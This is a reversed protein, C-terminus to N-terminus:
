RTNKSIYFVQQWTRDTLFDHFAVGAFFGLLFGFFPPSLLITLFMGLMGTIWHHLHLKWKGIPIHIGKIKGTRKRIKQCVFPTQALYFSCVMTFYGVIFGIVLLYPLIFFSILTIIPLSFKKIKKKM